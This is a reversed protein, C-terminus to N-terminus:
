LAGIAAIFLTKRSQVVSTDRGGFNLFWSINKVTELAANKKFYFVLNVHFIIPLRHNLVFVKMGYTVYEFCRECDM